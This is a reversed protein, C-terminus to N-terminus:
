RSPPLVTTAGRQWQRLVEPWGFQARWGLERAIEAPDYVRDIHKPLSWGQHDFVAALGPARLRILADAEAHLRPLDARAFVPTASVLWTRPGLDQRLALVHASAVDRVDIGRHLRYVAMQDVPEPFCRSMRLISLQLPHKETFTRLWQEAEWKSRHYITAPEPPTDLDIWNTQEPHEAAHGYLATTSTFVFRRIGTEYAREALLATAQVNIREFEADADIGVHPAHLAACHIVGDIGALAVDLTPRHDLEACIHTYTGAVRDIGRVQMGQAILERCVASGVRGSSGTVLVRWSATANLAM